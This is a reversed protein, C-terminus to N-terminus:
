AGPPSEPHREAESRDPVNIGALGQRDNSTDGRKRGIHYGGCWKCRYVVLRVGEEVRGTARDWLELAIRHGDAARRDAYFAKGCRADSRPLILNPRAM